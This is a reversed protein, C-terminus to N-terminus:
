IKSVIAVRQDGIREMKWEIKDGHQLELYAIIGLPVPAIMGNNVKKLKRVRSKLHM